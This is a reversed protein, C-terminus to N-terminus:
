GGGSLSGLPRDLALGALGLRDLQARLREEVDWDDGIAAFVEESADGDALAALAAIVPAVGLVDAVTRDAGFDSFPLTQPLYGLIGAATVAGATPRYEGTILRLLTSKGAGNPAVLGTRGGPITFSLDTFLPTDDPWGFSLHSSVISV